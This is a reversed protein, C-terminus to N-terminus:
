RRIMQLYLHWGKLDNYVPQIKTIHYEPYKKSLEDFGYDNSRCYTEIKRRSFKFDNKVKVPKDLNRSCSWSKQGKKWRPQKTLYNTLAEIGDSDPKIRRTTVRGLIKKKKGRGNSWCDELQDRDIGKSILLHFHIRTVKKQNEDEQYEM